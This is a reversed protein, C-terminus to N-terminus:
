MYAAFGLFLSLSLPSSTCPRDPRPVGGPVTEVVPVNGGFGRDPADCRLTNQFFRMGVRTCVIPNQTPPTFRLRTIPSNYLLSLHSHGILPRIRGLM